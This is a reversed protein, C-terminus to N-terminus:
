PVCRLECVHAYPTAAVSADADLLQESNPIFPLALLAIRQQPSVLHSIGVDYM